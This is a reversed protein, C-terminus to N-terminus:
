LDTTLNRTDPTLDKFHTAVAAACASKLAIL